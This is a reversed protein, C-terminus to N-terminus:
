RMNELSKLEAELSARKKALRKEEKALIDGKRKRYEETTELRVGRVSLESYDYSGNDIITINDEAFGKRVLEATLSKIRTILEKTTRGFYEDGVPIVEVVEEKIIRKM